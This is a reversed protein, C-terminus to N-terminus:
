QATARKRKQYKESLAAGGPGLYAEIVIKNEQIEKPTLYNFCDITTQLVTCSDPYNYNKM